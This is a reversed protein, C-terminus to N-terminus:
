FFMDDSLLTIKAGRTDSVCSLFNVDDMMLKRCRKKTKCFFFVHHRVHTTTKLALPAPTKKKLLLLLLFIWSVYRLAYKQM